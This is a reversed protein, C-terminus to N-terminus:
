LTLSNQGQSLEPTVCPSENARFIIGQGHTAGSHGTSTHATDGQVPWALIYSVLMRPALSAPHSKRCWTFLWCRGRLMQAGAARGM